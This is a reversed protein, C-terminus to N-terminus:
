FNYIENVSYDGLLNFIMLLLKFYVLFTFMSLIFIAHRETFRM